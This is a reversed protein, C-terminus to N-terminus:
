TFHVPHQELVKRLVFLGILYLSLISLNKAQLHFSINFKSKFHPIFGYIGEM